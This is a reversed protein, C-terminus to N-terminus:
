KSKQYIRGHRIAHIRACRFKEDELYRKVTTGCNHQKASDSHDRANRRKKHNQLTDM